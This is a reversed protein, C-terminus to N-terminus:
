YIYIYIDKKYGKFALRYLTVIVKYNCFIALKRQPVSVLYLLQWGGGGRMVARSPEARASIHHLVSFPSALRLWSAERTVLAADNAPEGRELRALLPSNFM